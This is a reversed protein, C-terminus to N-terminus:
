QLRKRGQVCVCHGSRRQVLAAGMSKSKLTEAFHETPTVRVRLVYSVSVVGRMQFLGCDIKPKIRINSVQM